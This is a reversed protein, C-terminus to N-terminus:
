TRNFEDTRGEKGGGSKETKGGRREEEGSRARGESRRERGVRKVRGRRRGKGGGEVRGM